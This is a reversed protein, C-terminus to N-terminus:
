IYVSTQIRGLWVSSHLSCFELKPTINPVSEMFKSEESHQSDRTIRLTEYPEPMSTSNDMPGPKWEEYLNYSIYLVQAKAETTVAHHCM